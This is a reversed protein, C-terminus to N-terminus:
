GGLALGIILGIGYLVGLTILVVGGASMPKNTQKISKMQAFPVTRETIRDREVIQLIVSDSEVGILKGQITQKATTKIRVPVGTPITLAVTQVDSKAPEAAPLCFTATLFIAILRSM